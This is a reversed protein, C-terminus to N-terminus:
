ADTITLASELDPAAALLHRDQIVRRETGEALQLQGKVFRSVTSPAVGAEAAVAQLTAVDRGSSEQAM